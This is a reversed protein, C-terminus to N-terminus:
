SPQAPRRGDGGGVFLLAAVYLAGVLGAAVWWWAGPVYSTLYGAPLVVALLLLWARLSLRRRGRTVRFDLAACTVAILPVAVILALLVGIVAYFIATGTTGLYSRGDPGFDWWYTSLLAGAPAGGTIAVCLAIGVALSRDRM